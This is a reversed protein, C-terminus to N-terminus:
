LPFGDKIEFIRHRSRTGRTGRTGNIPQILELIVITFAEVSEAGEVERAAPLQRNATSLQCSSLAIALASRLINTYADSRGGSGGSV